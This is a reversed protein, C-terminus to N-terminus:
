TAEGAQDEVVKGASEPSKQRVTGASKGCDPETHVVSPKAAAAASVFCVAGMAIPEAVAAYYGM